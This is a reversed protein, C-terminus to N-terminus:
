KGDCVDDEDSDIFPAQPCSVYRLREPHGPLTLQDARIAVPANNIARKLRLGANHVSLLSIMDDQDVGDGSVGVGGVLVDGRYIPVSGPFIQIGNALGRGAESEQFLRTPEFGTNGTCSTGADPVGGELAVHAVHQILGNYILDSQLGVSFVSWEGAAKSLPGPPNGAVGDPFNPRSLNGGSRDAFAAAPGDAELAKGVGLFSQVAALYAPFTPAPTALPSTELLAGVLEGALDAAVTAVDTVPALYRPPPLARLVDAPAAGDVRGTSSFFTATRAKQISVDAGFVPGDRTRAMGLIVGNTDVVSVTVRAATGLPRRIQARARNAVTIAEELLTQVEEPTLANAAVGGPQDTGASPPYRNENNEDVFVFADLPAGSASQLTGPAAPRVGSDAHGFATGTRVATGDYYGTVPVLAGSDAALRADLDAASAADSLLDAVSWDAYRFTKGAATIVDARRDVPASFGVTGALAVIEDLDDDFSAITKDLGYIGDGIFGIGGVPTGSKYLPFGGPDAALGLPSRHPGPGPLLGPTHRRIFDGCPLQSFQVGFLPGSPQNFEGPNFNEQVIQSATRTTFANGETSLYAGTVAKAIAALEAPIINVSELGGRVPASGDATSTVTVLRDAGDMAYVALVNGVRDVVAITGPLNRAEAEAAVQGIVQKVEAATLRTPTDACAGDCAVAATPTASSTPVAGGGQQAAIEAGQSGGGGGCGALALALLSFALPLRPM